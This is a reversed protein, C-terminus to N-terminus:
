AVKREQLREKKALWNNIKNDNVWNIKKETSWEKPLIYKKIEKTTNEEMLKKYSYKWREYELWDLKEWVKRYYRPIKKTVTGKKTHIIICNNEKIKEKNKIFWTRGIGQSMGIFEPEQIGKKNHWKRKIVIRGEENIETSDYYERKIKALGNKKMTYRAVYSASEYTIYGIPCYGKGWLKEIIKSKYVPLKSKKSIKDFKLDDPMWNLIIMHYHPNGGIKAREGNFGYEGCEFTRIPRETKRTYPNEWEMFPLKHKEAYKRLRKKFDIIDKRKLTTLGEKTMHLSPNNYSLTLFIGKNNWMECENKIRTAWENAKEIKCCPCEGCPVPIQTWGERYTLSPKNLKHLEEENKIDKPYHSRIYIYRPNQCVMKIGKKFLCSATIVRPEIGGASVM